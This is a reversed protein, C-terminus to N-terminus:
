TNEKNDKRNHQKGVASCHIEWRRYKFHILEEEASFSCKGGGNGGSNALHLLM